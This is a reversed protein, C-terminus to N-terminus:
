GEIEEASPPLNNREGRKLPIAVIAEREEECPPSPCPLKEIVVDEIEKETGFAVTFDEPDTKSYVVYLVVNHGGKRTIGYFGKSPVYKLSRPNIGGLRRQNIRARIIDLPIGTYRSIEGPTVKEPIVKKMARKQDPTLDEWPTEAGIRALQRSTYEQKRAM